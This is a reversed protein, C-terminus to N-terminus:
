ELVFSGVFLGPGAGGNAQEATVVGVALPPQQQVLRQTGDSQTEALWLSVNFSAAPKGCASFLDVWVLYTGSTPTSQWVVDERDIDDIV